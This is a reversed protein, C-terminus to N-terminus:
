PFIDSYDTETPYKEKILEEVGSGGGKRKEVKAGGWEM